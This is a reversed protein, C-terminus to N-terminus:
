EAADLITAARGRYDPVAAPASARSRYILCSCRLLSAFNNVEGRHDLVENHLTTLFKALTMGEKVAIEELTDWFSMELRISTCHGDIRLSRTQSQYDRQPQHAFLQCM